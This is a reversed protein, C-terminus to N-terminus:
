ENLIKETNQASVNMNSYTDIKSQYASLREPRELLTSIKTTLEDLDGNKFAFDTPDFCYELLGPCDSVLVPLTYAYCTMVVGSQTADLYPLVCFASTSMLDALTEQDIFQNIVEINHPLTKNLFGPVYNDQCKGAITFVVDNFEQSLKEAASYFLEVGKYPSIRGFFLVRKSPHSEPKHEIKLNSYIPTKLTIVKDAYARYHHAFLETAYNSYLIFKNFYKFYINRMIDLRKRGEGTHAVPDHVIHYLKKNRIRLLLYWDAISLSEIITLEAKLISKNAALSKIWHLTNKFSTEKLEEYQFIVNAGTFYDQFRNYMKDAIEKTLRFPKGPEAIKDDKTSFYNVHWPSVIIIVTLASRKKLEQILELAIDNFYPRTVYTILM